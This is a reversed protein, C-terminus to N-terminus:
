SSGGITSDGGKRSRFTMEAGGKTKGNPQFPTPINQPCVLWGVLWDVYQAVYTVLM